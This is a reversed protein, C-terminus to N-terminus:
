EGALRTRRGEEGPKLYGRELLWDRLVTKAADALEAGLENGFRSLALTEDENLSIQIQM